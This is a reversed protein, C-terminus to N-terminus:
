RSRSFVAVRGSDAVAVVRVEGWYRQRSFIWDRLRYNIEKRGHQQSQLQSVVAEACEDTSLGDFGQDPPICSLQRDPNENTMRSTNERKIGRANCYNIRIQMQEEKQKRHRGRDSPFASVALHFQKSYQAKPVELHQAYHQNSTIIHKLWEDKAPCAAPVCRAAEATLSLQRGLWQDLNQPM